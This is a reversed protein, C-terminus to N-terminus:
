FSHLDALETSACILVGPRSVLKVTDTVYPIHTYETPVASQRNRSLLPIRLSFVSRGDFPGSTEDPRYVQQIEPRDTLFIAIVM